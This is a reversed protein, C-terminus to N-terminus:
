YPKYKREEIKFATHRKVSKTPGYDKCSFKECNVISPKDENEQDFLSVYKSGNEIPLIAEIISQESTKPAIFSQQNDNLRQVIDKTIEKQKQLQGQILSKIEVSM